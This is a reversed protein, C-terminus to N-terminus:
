KGSNEVYYVEQKAQNPYGSLFRIYFKDVNSIKALVQEGPLESGKADTNLAEWFPLMAVAGTIFHEWLKQHDGGGFLNVVKGVFGHKEEPLMTCDYQHWEDTFYMVFYM